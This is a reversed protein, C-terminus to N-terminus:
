SHKQKKHRDTSETLRQRLCTNRRLVTNNNVAYALARAEGVVICYKRARTVGTYVLNRQLMYYDSMTVPMIVCPYESGQSKHITSCYSLSLEGLDSGEYAVDGGGFNVSLTRDEECVSSVYGIDGNYVDKDYNNKMQMVRDGRRFMTSGFVIHPGSPNLCAQLVKNMSVVGSPGDHKAALVQIDEKRFKGTRPLRDTVLSRVLEACASGDAAPLFFFDTHRGNSLDPMVGSNIRHANTVIRSELAQRHVTQLRIVTVRGSDIIDRLVNGPGVSPLQAIDGVLFLRMSTPVAKLLANMLMIDVMSSEDIILADGSLPNLQDRKFGDGPSFELLRHITRSPKGTAEQMRKAARGTPAALLVKMGMGELVAIIGKVTTTKGTGPGGTLVMVQSTVSQRIAATQVPDYDMGTSKILIDIRSEHGFLSGASIRLLDNLRGVVGVESFYLKPLFINGDEIVIDERSGMLGLVEGISEPSLELLAASRSVTEDQPLYCHGEKSVESLLFMIGSRKRHYGDKPYGMKLAIRDATRFGIGDIEDALIYPNERVKQISADGYTKYIRVAYATSVGNGMLFTMIDRITRQRAVSESISRARVSGIGPVTKLLDPFNEIVSFTDKGFRAVILSATKPGINPILGSALYAEIGDVTNPRVESWSSVVFQRGYKRDSGWEGSVTLHMGERVEYFTGVFTIVSGKSEEFGKFVTYGNEQNQFLLRSIQCNIEM